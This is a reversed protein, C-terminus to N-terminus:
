PSFCTPSEQVNIIKGSERYQLEAHLEQQNLNMRIM